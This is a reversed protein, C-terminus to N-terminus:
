AITFPALLTGLHRQNAALGFAFTKAYVTNFYTTDSGLKQRIQQLAVKM